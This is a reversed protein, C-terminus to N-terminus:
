LMALYLTCHSTTLSSLKAIYRTKDAALRDQLYKREYTTGVLRRTNEWSWGVEDGSQRKGDGEDRSM